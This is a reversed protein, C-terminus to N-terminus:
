HKFYHICKTSGSLDLHYISSMRFFPIFYLPSLGDGPSFPYGYFYLLRGPALFRFIYILLSYSGLVLRQGEPFSDEVNLVGLHNQSSWYWFLFALVFFPLKEIM